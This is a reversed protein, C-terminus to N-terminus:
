CIDPDNQYKTSQDKGWCASSKVFSKQDTAGQKEFVTIIDLLVRANESGQEAFGLSGLCSGIQLYRWFNQILQSQKNEPM